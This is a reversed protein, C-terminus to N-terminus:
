RRLLRMPPCSRSRISEIEWHWCGRRRCLKSAGGFRRFCLIQLPIICFSPLNPSPPPNPSIQLISGFYKKPMARGRDGRKGGRNRRGRGVVRATRISQKQNSRSLASTPRRLGTPPGLMLEPATGEVEHSLVAGNRGADDEGRTEAM